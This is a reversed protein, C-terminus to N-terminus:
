RQFGTRPGDTDSICFGHVITPFFGALSAPHGLGPRDPPGVPQLYVLHTSGIGGAGMCRHRPRESTRTSTGPIGSPRLAAAEEATVLYPGARHTVGIEIDDFPTLEGDM